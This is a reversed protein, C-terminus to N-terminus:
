HAPVVYVIHYKSPNFGSSRIYALAANERNRINAELTAPSSRYDSESLKINISLVLTPKANITKIIPSINYGIDGYPLYKLIPDSYPSSALINQQQQLKQEEESPKNANWLILALALAIVILFSGILIYWIRKQNNINENEM